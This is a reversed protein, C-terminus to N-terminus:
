RFCQLLVNELRKMGVGCRQIIRPLEEIKKRVIGNAIGVVYERWHQQHTRLVVANSRRLCRIEHRSVKGVRLGHIDRSGSVVADVISRAENDIKNLFEERVEFHSAIRERSQNGVVLFMMSKVLGERQSRSWRRLM